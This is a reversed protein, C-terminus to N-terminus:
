KADERRNIRRGVRYGRGRGLGRQPTLQEPSDACSGLGLGTKPGKGQPGTKDKNPM